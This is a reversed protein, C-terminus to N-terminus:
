KYVTKPEPENLIKQFRPDKRLPDWQWRLRLDPLTISIDYNICGPTSLLHDILTIAQDIEGTRAYILALASSMLPGLVADTAEPKLEVAHRGERIADEKRGMFAYLVGLQAHRVANQPAERVYGEFIPRAEEFRVLARASEGRALDVCGQLYSKPLPPGWGERLPDIQCASVIQEAAAFDREFLSIDWRAWVVLDEAGRGPVSKLLAKARATDGRSWLDVYARLIQNYVSDPALTVLRDFAQAAAPWDRLICYMYALDDAPFPNQPDIAQAKQIGAIAEKWRGQRRRLAAIRGIIEADNPLARAAIGFEELAREHNGDVLYFVNGLATHAEGLNPRLRLAEEAEARAKVAQADTPEFSYYLRVLTLSLRAHALAFSPDLAIANEYLHVATQIDRLQGESRTEYEHARLYSVYAEANDTPKAGVSAKEQPSLTARLANAIETAVEGQLTLADSLTRDYRESWLQRDNEVDILEVNVLVRNAVRRVSGELVNAVGLAQGIQRLNRAAPNRYAMVSTRRIVKLEKIKSLASLIDDLIGDAFFANEEEKSLNELPLVAISREPLGSTRHTPFYRQFLLGAIVVLLVGIILFDLKRGTLRRISKKPDVDETRKIGEPTLEYAWALLLAIPFGILLLAVVLRVGWGPIEFFPFTQTAIQILLWTVVGYAIAVKYVNRRKLEGFFRKPNV